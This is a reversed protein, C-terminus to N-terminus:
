LIRQLDELNLKALTKNGSALEHAIQKVDHYDYDAYDCIELIDDENEERFFWNYANKKVQQNRRKKSQSKLDILQQLIVARWLGVEGRIKNDEADCNCSNSVNISYSSVEKKKLVM